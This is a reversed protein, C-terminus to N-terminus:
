VCREPINEDVEQATTEFVSRFDINQIKVEVFNKEDKEQAGGVTFTMNQALLAQIGEFKIKQDETQGYLYTGASEDKSQYLTLFEEVTTQRIDPEGCSTLTFGFIILFVLFLVAKKM